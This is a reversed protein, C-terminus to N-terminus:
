CLSVLVETQHGQLQLILQRLHPSLEPNVFGLISVFVLNFTLDFFGVLVVSLCKLFSHIFIAKLDSLALFVSLNIFSCVFLFMLQSSANRSILCLQLISTDTSPMGQYPDSTTRLTEYCFTLSTMMDSPSNRSLFVELVKNAANQM